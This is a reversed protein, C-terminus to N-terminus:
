PSLLDWEPIRKLRSKTIRSQLLNEVTDSLM